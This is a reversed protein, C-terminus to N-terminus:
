RGAESSSAHPDSMAHVWEVLEAQNRVGVKRYVGQLHKRV